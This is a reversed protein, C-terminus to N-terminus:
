DPMRPPSCAATWQGGDEEEGAAEGFAFRCPCGCGEGKAGQGQSKASREEGRSGAGKERRGEGQEKRGGGGAAGGRSRCVGTSKRVHCDVPQNMFDVTLM